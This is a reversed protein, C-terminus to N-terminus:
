EIFYPLQRLSRLRFLEPKELIAFDAADSLGLRSAHVNAHDRRRITREVGGDTGSLKSFVQQIADVDQAHKDATAPGLRRHAAGRPINKPASGLHQGPAAGCRGFRGKGRQSTIVPGAIDSLQLVDNGRQNNAPRSVAEHARRREGGAKPTVSCPM